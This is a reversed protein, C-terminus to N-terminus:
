RECINKLVELSKPFTDSYYKEFDENSDVEVSLKTKGNQEDFKYNEFGGAWSDVDPGEMIEKGDVLVGKHVISIFKEPIHEHIFSVMGGINGTEDVGVFLIKSGKEWNGIFHSTPNFVKTWERYHTDDILTEYVKRSPANINIDFTLTTPKKMNNLETYNKFNDLIAKWGKIQLEETNENELEFKETVLTSNEKTTFTVIVKRDDDLTYEMRQHKDIKTYTGGFDFGMKGDKSEMRAVFKGGIQLDVEAKTTHWDDSAHNWKCIHHPQTWNNWVTEVPANVLVSVTVLKNKDEM